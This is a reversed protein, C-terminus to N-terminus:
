FTRTSERCVEGRVGGSSQGGNKDQGTDEVWKQMTGNEAGRRSAQVGGQQQQQQQARHAENVRVAEGSVREGM